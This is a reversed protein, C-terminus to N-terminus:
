GISKLYYTVRNNLDDFIIKAFYKDDNMYINYVPVIPTM